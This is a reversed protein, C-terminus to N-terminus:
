AKNLMNNLTTNALNLPELLSKQDGMTDATVKLWGLKLSTTSKQFEHNKKACATLILLFLVFVHFINFKNILWTWDYYLVSSVTSYKFIYKKLVESIM